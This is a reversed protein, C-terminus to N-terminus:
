LKLILEPLGALEHRDNEDGPTAIHRYSHVRHPCAGHIDELLREVVFRKESRDLVPHLARTRPTPFMVLVEVEFSAEARQGSALTFNECQDRGTEQVFLDASFQSYALPGDFHMALSQAALHAGVREGLKRPYSPEELDV